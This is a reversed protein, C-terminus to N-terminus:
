RVAVIALMAIGTGMDRQIGIIIIAVVLLLAGLPILTKYLDNVLGQEARRAIFGASFLLLGFKLLEAPQISGLPGLDFWRTAGYSKQAIGLDAWGAIALVICAGIAIKLILSAHQKLWTYPLKAIVIFAVVALVLSTAQKIFFYTATYNDTGFSANLVQARQPGIAYMVILGLLMLLGMFLVIQYDPRHKRVLGPTRPTARRM